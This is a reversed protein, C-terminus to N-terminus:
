IVGPLIGNQSPKTFNVFHYSLNSLFEIMKLFISDTQVNGQMFKSIMWNREWGFKTCFSLLMNCEFCLVFWVIIM